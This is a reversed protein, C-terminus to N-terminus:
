VLGLLHAQQAFNPVASVVEDFTGRAVIAGGELYVVLDCHRVTALRHAITVVTVNGELEQLTDVIARETEADLASTAEDLVMLLPRTYLARAIGLRQRQGGSIRVGAEGVVTDLGDRAERLFDDLRASKLAEWVRDDDIAHAPLGLAVNQRISGTVISVAQPVYALAGPWRSIAELPPLGGIEVRGSAPRVVGLIADALTSKGAGTPGVLAVSSGPPVHLNVEYLSPAAASEYYFTVNQLNVTPDFDPSGDRVRRTLEELSVTAYSEADTDGESSVRLEQALEITPKAMGSAVRIGLTAGQLRLMSPVVRSGAALFVAIIAMAASADKLLFQSWALLGAGIILAVEFVYKPVQSMLSLDAQVQAATWRLAQFQQAYLNRRNTVLVERYTSVSEQVLATSAVEAESNTTGLRHARSSMIRQLIFAIGAFFAVAFIAVVPDLLLLGVALIGLLSLEAGVTVAQGLVGLMASNAGTTLAYATQQSQRRQVQILPRALLTSALQGSVIAQRYALFRLVRRTLLVNVISKTILLLGAIVSLRIASGLLEESTANSTGVISSVMSPLPTGSVASTAMAAVIGFLAVGAADLFGTLMQIGTVVGLKRQDVKNLLKLSDSM